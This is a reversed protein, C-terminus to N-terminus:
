IWQPHATSCSAWSDVPSSNPSQNQHFICVQPVGRFPHRDFRYTGILNWLPLTASLCPRPAEWSHSHPSSPLGAPLHLCAQLSVSAPPPRLLLFLDTPDLVASLVLPWSCLVLCRAGLLVASPIPSSVVETYFPPVRKLYEIIFFVSVSPQLSQQFTMLTRRTPLGGFLLARLSQRQSSTTKLYVKGAWLTLFISM